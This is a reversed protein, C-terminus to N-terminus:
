FKVGPSNENNIRFIGRPSPTALPQEPMGEPAISATRFPSHRCEPASAICGPHFAQTM